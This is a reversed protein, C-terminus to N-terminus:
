KIIVATSLLKELLASKKKAEEKKKLDKILGDKVKEFGLQNQKKRDKVRVIYFGIDKEIIDSTTNIDMSFAIEEVVSELRGKHVFGLDGGKVRSRDASYRQAVFAFNEGENLEEQAKEIKQKAKERGEPDTPNNRVYIIKVWIKEPEKFKFKNKEYYEKLEEDSITVEIEEKFLMQLTRSKKIAKKFTLMTFGREKLGKIVYEESKNQKIIDEVIDEVEEDSVVIKKSLAYAYFLNREILSDLAKKKLAEMKADTLSAHYYTQPLEKAIEKDLEDESIAVGNVVAVTSEPLMAKDAFIYSHLLVLFLIIKM